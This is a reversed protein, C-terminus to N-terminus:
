LITQKAIPSNTRSFDIGYTQQYGLAVIRSVIRSKYQKIVGKKDLTMWYMWRFEIAKKNYPLATPKFVKNSVISIIDLQEAM